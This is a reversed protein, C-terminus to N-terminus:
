GRLMTEIRNLQNKIDEHREDSLKEREEFLQDHANVRGELRVGWIVGGLATVFPAWLPSWSSDAAAM